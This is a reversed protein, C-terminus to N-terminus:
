LRLMSTYHRHIFSIMMTLFVLLSERPWKIANTPIVQFVRIRKSSKYVIRKDKSAYEKCISGVFSHKDDSGDALCLEWNTYTQKLVSDIMDNLFNKPTNYLPVLISIKVMRDFSASQQRKREQSDPFGATGYSKMAKTQRRKFKIKEIVGKLSGCNKVRQLEFRIKHITMKFPRILRYFINNRVKDVKAQLEANKAQLETLEDSAQIRLAREREFLAKYDIEESENISNNVENESM